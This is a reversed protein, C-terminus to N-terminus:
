RPSRTPEARGALPIMNIILFTVRTKTLAVEEKKKRGFLQALPKNRPMSKKSSESQWVSATKKWGNSGIQTHAGLPSVRVLKAQFLDLLNKILTDLINPSFLLVKHIRFAPRVKAHCSCLAGDWNWDGLLIGCSPCILRGVNRNVDLKM